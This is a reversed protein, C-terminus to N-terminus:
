EGNLRAVGLGDTDIGTPRGALSDALLRASGCALAWGSSGHGVNLWVGAIGSHGVIPPGDPLMPRAGKWSQAQGLRACGPFWDDLVKYLHDITAADHRVSSGGIEVGGAVRVRRGLRCITVDHREDIVASRPGPDPYGDGSRLPATISHGHVATLPLKLGHPRLLERTGLAACVVVADFRESVLVRVMPRTDQAPASAGDHTGAMPVSDEDPPAYVFVLEPGDGAVIKQVRTHFQFQVGLRQAQARLLNAFQRCNGVEVDPLHIGAHLAAEPNLGPEVERCRGADFIEFRTRSARLLSLAHQARTLDDPTRLLMLCGDSRECDLSMSRTLRHLQERGYYALRQMRVCNAAYTRSRSARWSRWAWAVTAATAGSRMRVPSTRSILQRLMRATAGPTAWPTVLGPAAIGANAFSSEAGVSGAREFVTVRHGDAALEHATTVGIIGAGIM